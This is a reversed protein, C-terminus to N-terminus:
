VQMRGIPRKLVLSLDVSEGAKEAWDWSPERCESLLLLLHYYVFEQRLQISPIHDTEGEKSQQTSGAEVSCPLVTKRPPDCMYLMAFM